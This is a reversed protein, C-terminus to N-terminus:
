AAEADDGLARGDGALSGHYRSRGIWGRWFDRTQEFLHVIEEPPVVQAPGDPATEIVMGGVDGADLTAFARVGHETRQMDEDGVLRGDRRAANVNMTM